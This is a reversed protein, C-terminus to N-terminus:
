AVLRLQAVGGDGRRWNCEFHATAVNDPTDGGGASIPIIHDITPAKPHPVKATRRTMRGCLHCRWGDRAFVDVARYPEIAVGKLAARRRRKGRRKTERYNAAVCAPCKSTWKGIFQVGCQACTIPHPQVPVFAAQFRLRGHERTGGHGPGKVMLCTMCIPERLRCRGVTAPRCAHLQEDYGKRAAQRSVPYLRACDSCLRWEVVASDWAAYRCRASCYRQRGKNFPSVTYAAGCRACTSM